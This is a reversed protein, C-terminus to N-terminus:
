RHSEASMRVLGFAGGGIVGGVLGFVFLHIPILNIRAPSWPEALYLELKFTTFVPWYQSFLLGIGSGVTLGILLGHIAAAAIASSRDRRRKMADKMVWGVALSSLVIYGVIVGIVKIGYTAIRELKERSVQTEPEAEGFHRPPSIRDPQQKQEKAEGRVKASENARNVKMAAAIVAICTLLFIGGVISFATMGPSLGNKRRRRRYVPLPDSDEDPSPSWDEIRVSPPVPEDLSIPSDPEIDSPTTKDPSVAEEGDSQPPGEHILIGPLPTQSVPTPVIIRQSCAPCLVEAGAKRIAISLRKTCRPCAFHIPM